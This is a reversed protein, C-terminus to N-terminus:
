INSHHHQVHAKVKEMLVYKLEELSWCNKIEQKSLLQKIAEKSSIFVAPLPPYIGYEGEFEDRHLFSAKLSLGEIFSKWGQKVSFNGFTLACLHCQYTAPSVIKHAFGTVTSFFDGNANYVFILEQKM